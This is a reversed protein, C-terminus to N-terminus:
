ENRGFAFINGSVTLVVSHYAGAAVQMIPIGQLSQLYTPVNSPLKSGLGLQGYSNKGMVYVRGDETLMLISFYGCSVQIIPKDPANKVLTPKAWFLEDDVQGGVSGWLYLQGKNNLAASFAQGASIQTIVQAELAAVQVPKTRPGEHGLQECDNNGCSYVTGDDLLFLTHNMGCAVQKLRMNKGFFKNETPSIIIEEEIGGLGLQGHKTSGWCLM